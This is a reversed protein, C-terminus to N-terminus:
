GGEEDHSQRYRRLLLRALGDASLSCLGDGITPGIGAETFVLGAEAAALVGGIRRAADLKTVVMSRAGLAAYSRGIEASDAYGQGAPMVLVLEAGTDAGLTSLKGLDTSNFSNISPGDVLVVDAGGEARLRRLEATTSIPIPKLDLPALLTSLQDLSGARGVDSTFVDVTRGALVEAAALKAVTATKGGGPPGSLLLPQSDKAVLNGFRFLAKLLTTLITESDAPKVEKLAPEIRDCLEFPWEHFDALARLWELSQNTESATLVDALDISADNMAGTVSVQGDDLTQMTLIVADEGLSARLNAMAQKSTSAVFSVIRMEIKAGECRAWLGFEHKPM